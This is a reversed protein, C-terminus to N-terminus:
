PAKLLWPSRPYYEELRSFRKSGDGSLDAETLAKEM